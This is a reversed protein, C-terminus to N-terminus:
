MVYLGLARELESTIDKSMQIQAALANRATVRYDEVSHDKYLRLEADACASMVAARNRMTNGIAEDSLVGRQSDRAIQVASRHLQLMQPLRGLVGAYDAMRDAFADTERTHQRQVIGACNKYAEATGRLATALNPALKDPDQHTAKSLAAFGRGLRMFDKRHEKQQAIGHETMIDSLERAARESSKIYKETIDVSLEV